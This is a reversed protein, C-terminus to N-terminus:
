VKQLSIKFTVQYKVVDGRSDSIDFLLKILRQFDDLFNSNLPKYHDIVMKGSIYIYFKSM